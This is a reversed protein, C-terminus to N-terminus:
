HIVATNQTRLTLSPLDTLAGFLLDYTYEIKLTVIDGVEYSEKEPVISAVNVMDLTLGVRDLEAAIRANMGEVDAGNRAFWFVGERTANHMGLYTNFGHGLDVMGLLLALFIPLILAFEALSVGNERQLFHPLRLQKM